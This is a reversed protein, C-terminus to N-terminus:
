AEVAKVTISNQGGAQKSYSMSSVVFRITEDIFKSGEPLDYNITVIDGLQLHPVGFVDLDIIRRPRLTKKVVWGM